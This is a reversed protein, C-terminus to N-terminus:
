LDVLLVKEIKIKEANLYKKFLVDYEKDTKHIIKLIPKVWDPARGWVTRGKYDFYSYNLDNSIPHMLCHETALYIKEDQLIILDGLCIDDTRIEDLKKKDYITKM